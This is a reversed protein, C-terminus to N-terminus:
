NLIIIVFHDDAIMSHFDNVGTWPLRLTAICSDDAPYIKEVADDTISAIVVKVYWGAKSM